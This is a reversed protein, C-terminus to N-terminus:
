LVVLPAVARSRRAYDYVVGSSGVLWPIYAYSRRASRLWYYQSSSKSNVMYMKYNENTTYKEQPATGGNRQQWYPLVTGEGTLQPAIYMEELCPLFAKHYGVSYGSHGTVANYATKVKVTKLVAVLEPDLYGLFGKRTRISDDPAVDWDDKKTWYPYGDGDLWQMVLSYEYENYGCFSEQMCNLNGNRSSYNMTGLLTASDSSGQVATVTEIVTYGDSAYVRINKDNQNDAFNRFGAISGGVPVDKTTTFNWTLMDSTLNSWAQAFTVQYTGAVLGSPCRLFARYNTFQITFPPMYMPQLIARHALEGEITEVTANNDCVIWPFEYVTSDVTFTSVLAEGIAHADKFVDNDVQESLQGWTGYKKDTKLYEALENMLYYGGTSEANVALIRDTGKPTLKLASFDMSM